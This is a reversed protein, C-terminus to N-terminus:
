NNGSFGGLWARHRLHYMADRTCGRCAAEWDDDSIDPAAPRGCGPCARVEYVVPIVVPEFADVNELRIRVGVVVVLLLSLWLMLVRPRNRSEM